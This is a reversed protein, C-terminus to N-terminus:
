AYLRRFADVDRAEVWVDKQGIEWRVSGLLGPLHFFAVTRDSAYGSSPQIQQAMPWRMATAEIIAALRRDRDSREADERALCAPSCYVRRGREVFGFAEPPADHGEDDCRDENYEDLAVRHGCHGCEFWWGFEYLARQPVPGPAYGDFHPARVCTVAEWDTNLERAGLVRAPANSVAFAVCANEDDSVAYAKLRGAEGQPVTM